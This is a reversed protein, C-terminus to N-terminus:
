LRSCPIFVFSGRVNDKCNCIGTTENCSPDGNVTGRVDCQCATCGSPNVAQLSYYGIKCRDCARGDVYDKCLCNGGDQFQIFIRRCTSNSRYFNSVHLTLDRWIKWLHMYVFHGLAFEYLNVNDVPSITQYLVLKHMQLSWCLLYNSEQLSLHLEIWM